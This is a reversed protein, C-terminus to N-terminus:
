TNAWGRLLNHYVGTLQLVSPHDPNDENLRQIANDMDFLMTRQADDRVLSQIWFFSSIRAGETVPTVHHLSSSPYLIMDGAPLKVSHEGYTDEIVLEGGKYDEPDYFFLTASLDTRIRFNSGTVYRIANDVHTGFKGGCEYRNFLPPFIHLPLAASMFLANQGLAKLIMSGLEKAEKSGEPLQLNHKVKGSQYGATEKGDTWQAKTLLTRAYAVQEQTLVEPIHLLM